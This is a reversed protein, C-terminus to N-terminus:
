VEGGKLFKDLASLIEPYAPNDEELLHHEADVELYTTRSKPMRHVLKLAQDQNVLPDRAGRVILVNAEIKGARRYAEEGLDLAERAASVPLVLREEVVKRVRPDDLDWGPLMREVQRRIEPHLFDGDRVPRVEPTLLSLIPILAPLVGPFRWFPAFLVLRDAPGIDLHMAIAAGVSFGAILAPGGHDARLEAFAKEAAKVWDSRTTQALRSFEPGFGPLLIGRVRWGAGALWEGLSRMEAPTGPFGHILLAGGSRGDGLEFPEHEPGSFLPLDFAPTDDSM